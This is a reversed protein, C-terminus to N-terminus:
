NLGFHDNRGSALLAEIGRYVDIVYSLAQFTFFSIGIPLVISTEPFWSRTMPIWSHITGTIFNLYKFITLIGLNIVIDLVLLAKATKEKDRWREILLALTYNACISFIMVFVFRPEGWAYFFLSALLLWYNRWKKPLLFNVGYTIPFFILLFEISSFLM